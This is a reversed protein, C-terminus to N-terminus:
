GDITLKGQDLKECLFIGAHQTCLYRHGIQYTAPRCCQHISWGLKEMRAFRRERYHDAYQEDDYPASCQIREIPEPKIVRAVLRTAVLGGVETIGGM